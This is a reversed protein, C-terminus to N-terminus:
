GGEVHGIVFLRDKVRVVKYTEGPRLEAVLVHVKSAPYDIPQYNNAPDMFTVTDRTKSMLMLIKTMGSLDEKRFGKSWIYSPRLTIEKGTIMDLLLPIGRKTQALLMYPRGEVSIVDGTKIDPLRVLITLRGRKSGDAKRGVLKWTESTTGMFASRLKSAIIRASTLDAVLIDFGEKHEETGIIATRLVTSLEELLFRDVRRRLDGSLRGESSRVQVIANYGRKTLKNTCSPCVGADVKVEVVKRERVEVGGSRGAVTVVAHYIGAGTFPRSLKVNEIWVEEIDQTPKAKKTLVMHIYDRLTEELTGSPANWGGQYKYSGCYQCYVFNVRSPIVAVGHVEVYCDKCLNGIFEVESSRRGCRPCIKEM